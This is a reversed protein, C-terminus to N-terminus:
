IRIKKYCMFIIFIFFTVLLLYLTLCFSYLGNSINDSKITYSNVKKNKIYLLRSLGTMPYISRSKINYGAVFCFENGLIKCLLIKNAFIIHNYSINNLPVNKIIYNSENIIIFNGTKKNKVADSIYSNLNTNRYETVPLNIILFFLIIPPIIGYYFNKKNKIFFIFGNEIEDLFIVVLPLIYRGGPAFGHFGEWLCLFLSFLFISLLKIKTFKNKGFFIIPLIITYSFLVGSGFSFYFNFLNNLVFGLNFNPQFNTFNEIQGTDSLFSLSTKFLIVALFLFLSILFSNVTRSEIYRLFFIVIFYYPKLLLILLDYLIKYNGKISTIRLVFLLLILSEIYSGTFFSILGTGFFIIFCLFLSLAKSRKQLLFNYVFFFSLFSYLSLLFGSFYKSIFIKITGFNFILDFFFVVKTIIYTQLIWLARNDFTGISYNQIACDFSQCNNETSLFDKISLDSNIFNIVFNYVEIDDSGLRGRFFFLSFFFVLSIPFIKKKTFIM